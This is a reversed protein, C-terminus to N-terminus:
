KKKFMKGPNIRRTKKDYWLLYVILLPICSVFLYCMSPIRMLEDTIGLLGMFVTIILTIFYFLFNFYYWILFFRPIVEVFNRYTIWDVLSQGKKRKNRSSRDLFLVIIKWIDARIFTFILIFYITLAIILSIMTRMGKM